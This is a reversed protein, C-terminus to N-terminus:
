LSTHIFQFSVRDEFFAVSDRKYVGHVGELV